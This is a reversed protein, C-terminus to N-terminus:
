FWTLQHFTQNMISWVAIIGDGCFLLAEDQLFRNDGVKQFGHILYTVVYVLFEVNQHNEEVEGFNNRLALNTEHPKQGSKYIPHAIKQEAPPV